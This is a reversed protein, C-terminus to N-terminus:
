SVSQSLITTVAMGTTFAFVLVMVVFIVKMVGTEALSPALMGSSGPRETIRMVSSAKGCRIPPRRPRGRGTYTVTNETTRTKNQSLALPNSLSCLGIDSTRFPGHM